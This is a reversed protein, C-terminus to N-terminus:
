ADPPRDMTMVNTTSELVPASGAVMVTERVFASLEVSMARDQSATGVALGSGQKRRADVRGARSRVNADSDVRGMGRTARGELPRIVLGGTTVDVTVPVSPEFPQYRLLM